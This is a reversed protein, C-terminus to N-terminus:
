QPVGHDHNSGPLGNAYQLALLMLRSNRVTHQDDCYAVAGATRLDHLEALQEGKLGQTLAGVPLVQVVHGNARSLM